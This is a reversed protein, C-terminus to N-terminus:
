HNLPDKQNRRVNPKTGARCLIWKTSTETTDIKTYTEATETNTEMESFYSIFSTANLEMQKQETKVGVRWRGTATKEHSTSIKSFLNLKRMNKDSYSALLYKICLNSGQHHCTVCPAVQRCWPTKTHKETHVFLSPLTQVHKRNRSQIKLLFYRKFRTDLNYVTQLIKSRADLDEYGSEMNIPKTSSRHASTTIWFVVLKYEGRYCVFAGWLLMGTSWQSRLIGKPFYRFIGHCM